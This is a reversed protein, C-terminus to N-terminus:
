KIAIYQLNCFGSSTITDDVAVVVEQGAMKASLVMSIATENEKPIVILYEGSYKNCKSQNEFSVIPDKLGFWTLANWAPTAPYSAGHYRIQSIDGAIEFQEAHVAISSVSLVYLFIVKINM